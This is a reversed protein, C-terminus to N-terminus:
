KEIMLMYSLYFTKILRKVSVYKGGLNKGLENLEKSKFFKQEGFPWLHFLGMKSLLVYTIHLTSMFGPVFIILKGNNKTIRFMEKSVDNYDDFHEIVGQNWVVDFSGNRFPMSHIDAVVLMPKRGLVSKYYDTVLLLANKSLDLFVVDYDKQALRTSTVGSGCGPEIILRTDPTMNSLIIKEFVKSFYNKNIKEILSTKNKTKGWYRDWLTERSNGSNDM